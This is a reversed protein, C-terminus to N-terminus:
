FKHAPHSGLMFEAGLWFSSATKGPLHEAYDFNYQFNFRSFETLYWALLPSLRHRDDRFPDENRSVPVYDNNLSAGTGWVYEYRLGAAWQPKFGYLYQTYFGWDALTGGPVFLPSPPSAPNAVVAGDAQYRRVIIESQWITFPWGRENKEPKWKRTLDLGFIQTDGGRGTCNPGFAGSAGALWTVEECCATWSNEWRVTYLMDALSRVTVDVFPRGGIPRVAFVAPSALFSNVTEGNANQVAFYLQSFWSVPLLWSLRAGPCRLQDQGFVRVNILPADLWAWAHPHTPNMRGFESLFQGAKLQLGNPLSRTTMFAEELEVATSGDIPDIFMVTHMEGDLYPDVAGQM